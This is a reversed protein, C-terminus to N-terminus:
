TRNQKIEICTWSWVLAQWVIVSCLATKGILPTGAIHYNNNGYDTRKDNKDHKDCVTLNKLSSCGRKEIKFWIRTKSM